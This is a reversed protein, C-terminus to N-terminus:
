ATLTCGNARSTIFFIDCAALMAYNMAVCCFESTRGDQMSEQGDALESPHPQPSQDARDSSARRKRGTKRTLGWCAIESTWGDM